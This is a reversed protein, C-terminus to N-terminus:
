HNISPLYIADRKGEIIEMLDQLTKILTDKDRFCKGLILKPRATVKSRFNRKTM